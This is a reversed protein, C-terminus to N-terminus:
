NFHITSGTAVISGGASLNINSAASISIEGGSDMSLNGSINATTDGGVSADLDGSINATVNGEVIADLDGSVDAAVNGGISASVDGTIEAVVNGAFFIDLNGDPDIHLRAKEEGGNAVVVTIHVRKETNRTTQFTSDFDQGELDEHEPNEAVRVYTGSPHYWESDGGDSHSSYVHSAKRHVAKREEGEGAFLIQSVQPFLFGIVVAVGSHTAATVAIVYRESGYQGADADDVEDPRPLDAWGYDTGAFPTAVQVGAQMTGNDPYWLDVAYQEPYARLVRAFRIM